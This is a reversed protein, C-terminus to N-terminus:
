STRATPYLDSFNSDKFIYINVTYNPNEFNFAITVYLWRDMNAITDIGIEDTGNGYYLAVKNNKLGFFLYTYDQSNYQCFICHTNESRETRFWSALTFSDSSLTFPTTDLDNPPLLM